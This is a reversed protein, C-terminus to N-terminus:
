LKRKLKKWLSIYSEASESHPYKYVVPSLYEGMKEVISNCYISINLCEKHVKSFELMSDSHMNKKREVMSYFPLLKSKDFGEEKFYENLQEYTRISLVTPVVPILVADVNKFINESLSTINPPCDIIIYDFQQRVPKLLKRLWKESNKMDSLFNDLKRYRSDAPLISLNDFETEEISNEVSDNGFISKKLKKRNKGDMKFYFSSAGQPDLDILLVSNGESAAVYSINVSTATKGVGGKINYVAIVKM